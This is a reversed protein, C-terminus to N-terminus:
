VPTRQGFGLHNHGNVIGGVDSPFPGNGAILSREQLLIDGLDQVASTRLIDHSIDFVDLACLPVAFIPPSKEIWNGCACSAHLSEATGDIHHSM